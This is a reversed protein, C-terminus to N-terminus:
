KLEHRGTVEVKENKKVKSLHALWELKKKKGRSRLFVTASSKEAEPDKSLSNGRGLVREGRM